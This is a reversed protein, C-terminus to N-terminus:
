VMSDQQFHGPVLLRIAHPALGIKCPLQGKHDGDIQVPMQGHREASSVRVESVQAIHVDPQQDLKGSVLCLAYRALDKMKGSRLTMVVLDDTLLGARSTLVYDGGYHGARAVIVGAARYTSGGFDVTIMANGGCMMTRIAQWVYAGKGFLTKATPSVNAVTVADPGAGAMLLFACDNSMGPVVDISRAGNMYAVIDGTRKKLKIEHALVNATGIPIIGLPPIVKGRNRADMLGNVVENITGDGGAVFVPVDSPMERALARAHGGYCTEFVNTQVYLQKLIRELRRRRYGGATPNVIVNIATHSPSATMIKDNLM